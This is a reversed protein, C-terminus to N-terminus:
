VIRIVTFRVPSSGTASENKVHVYVSKDINQDSPMQYICTIGNNTTENIALIDATTISSSASTNAICIGTPKGSNWSMSAILLYVTGAPITFSLQSYTWTNAASFNVTKYMTKPVLMAVLDYNPRYPVFKNSVGFAAKTCLMLDTITITNGSQVADRSPYTFIYYSTNAAANWELEYKGTGTIRVDVVPLGSAGGNDYVQVLTRSGSATTVASVSFSFVVRVAKELKPLGFSCNGYISTASAVTLSTNTKTGTANNNSVITSAWDFLNKAGSDVVEALSARDESQLRTLDYNPLAYPKFEHSIGWAEATCIMPKFTLGESPTTYAENLVIYFYVPLSSTVITYGNGYEAAVAGWPSQAQEGHQSYTNESGGSPCGSLVCGAYKTGSTPTSGGSNETLYFLLRSATSTKKVTLTGDSNVTVSGVSYTCVNGNWTGDTNIAKLADLSTDLQNKSIQDSVYLINTQHTDLVGKIIKNQVPNTSSSSLASDVITKNAGAEINGLKNKETTTYDNTSLGKGSVKDVKNGLATKIATISENGESDFVGKEHCIPYAKQTAAEDSYLQILKSAM